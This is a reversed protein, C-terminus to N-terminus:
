FAPQPLVTLAIHVGQAAVLELTTDGATRCAVIVKSEEPFARAVQLDLSRVLVGGGGIPRGLGDALVVNLTVEDTALCTLARVSNGSSDLVDATVAAAPPVVDLTTRRGDTLTVDVPGIQPWTLASVTPIRPLSPLDEIRVVALRGDARQWPLPQPAQVILAEGAASAPARAGV